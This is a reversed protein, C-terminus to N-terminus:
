VAGGLIITIPPADDSWTTDVLKRGVTDDGWVGAGNTPVGDFGYLKYYNTSSTGTTKFVVWYKTGATLEPATSFVFWKIVGDTWSDQAIGASVGNTVSTGSPEGANDTQIECVIDNPPTGAVGNSLCGVRKISIAEPHKISHAREHSDATTYGVPLMATPAEESLMPFLLNNSLGCGAGALLNAVTIRKSEASAAESVDRIYVEDDDAPTAALETLASLKTDAM